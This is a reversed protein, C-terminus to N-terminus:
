VIDLFIISTYNFSCIFFKTAAAGRVYYKFFGDLLDLGLNILSPFAM